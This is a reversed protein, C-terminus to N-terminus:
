RCFAGDGGVGPATAPQVRLGPAQIRGATASSTTPDSYPRSSQSCLLDGQRGEGEHLLTFLSGSAKRLLIEATRRSGLLLALLETDSVSEIQDKLLM